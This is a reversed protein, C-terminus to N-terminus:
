RGKRSKLKDIIQSAQKLGLKDMSAVGHESLVAAVEIGLEKCIAHVARQQAQTAPIFRIAAASPRQAAVNAATPVTAVPKGHGNGNGNGGGNGDRRSRALIGGLGAM